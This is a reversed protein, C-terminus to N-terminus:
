LGAFTFHLIQGEAKGSLRSAAAANYPKILAKCWGSCLGQRCASLWRLPLPHSLLCSWFM